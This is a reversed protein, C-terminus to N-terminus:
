ADGGALRRDSADPVFSPDVVRRNTRHHWSLRRYRRRV